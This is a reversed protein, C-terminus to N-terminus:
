LSPMPFKAWAFGGLLDGILGRLSFRLLVPNARGGWPFAHFCLILDSGLPSFAASILGLIQGLLVVASRM